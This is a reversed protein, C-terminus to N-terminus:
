HSVAELKPHRTTCKQDWVDQFSLASPLWPPHFVSPMESGHRELLAGWKWFQGTTNLPEPTPHASPSLASLATCTGQQRGQQALAPCNLWLHVDKDEGGLEEPLSSAGESCIRHCLRTRTRLTEASAEPFTHTPTVPAWPKKPHAQQPTIGGFDHSFSM